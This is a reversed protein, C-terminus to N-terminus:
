PLEGDVIALMKWVHGERLIHMQREPMTAFSLVVVGQRERVRIRPIKLKPLRAAIQAHFHKFVATLVAACTTGRAYAPGPPSTGYDEPMAEAYISYLLSCAKTGDEVAALAYYTRVLPRIQAQESANAARGFRLVSADDSDYRGHGTSDGDNDRDPASLNPAETSSAGADATARAAKSATATKGIGGCAVISGALAVVALLSAIAKMESRGM